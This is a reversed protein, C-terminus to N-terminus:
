DLPVAFHYSSIHMRERFYFAHALKRQVGSDLQLSRCGLRRGETKLWDLLAKGHGSSRSSEDTVLDDVYLLKGHALMENVRWGAFARPAGAEYLATAYWGETIQRLAQAVFSAADLHPRLQGVVPWLALLESEATVTRIDHLTRSM